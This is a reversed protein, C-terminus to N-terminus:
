DASSPGAACTSLMGDERAAALDHVLRSEWGAAPLVLDTPFGDSDPPTHGGHLHVVSPVPLENRHTVTVRRGSRTALTPGPYIGDYGFIPTRLLIEAEAQRQTIVYHDGAADSRVPRAIPPVPLPVDFRQPLRVRSRLLAGTQENVGFSGAGLASLGAVGLFARRTIKM